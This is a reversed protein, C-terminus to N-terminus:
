TGPAATAARIKKISEQSRSIFNKYDPHTTACGFKTPDAIVEELAPVAKEANAGMRGLIEITIQQYPHYGDETLKWATRLDEVIPPVLERTDVKLEILLNMAPVRTQGSFNADYMPKRFVDMLAPVLPTVDIGLSLGLRRSSVPGFVHVTTPKM